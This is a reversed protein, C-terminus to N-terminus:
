GGSSHATGTWIGHERVDRDPHERKTRLSDLMEEMHKELGRRSTGCSHRRFRPVGRNPNDVDTGIELLTQRIIALETAEGCTHM